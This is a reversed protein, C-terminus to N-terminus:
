LSVLHTNRLTLSRTVCFLFLLIVPQSWSPPSISWYCDWSVKGNSLSFFLFCSISMLLKENLRWKIWGNNCKKVTKDEPTSQLIIKERERLNHHCFKLRPNAIVVTLIKQWSVNFWFLWSTCSIRCIFWWQWMWVLSQWKSEMEWSCESSVLMASLFELEWWGDCVRVRELEGEYQNQM